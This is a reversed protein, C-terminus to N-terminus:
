NADYVREGNIFTTLVRMNHINNIPMDFLNQETVVLDARMGVEITGVEHRHGMLRAGNETFIRYADELSVRESEGLMDESGGPKQRTVMTEIALWPNVSPVVSWDSGVVVLAGSDVADKIPIWREMREAGIVKAIDDAAIPTPYWIYPSFEWAMHLDVARSIDAMDAFSNHGLDHMAGGWGNAERAAAVADIAARVAADGVSHFKIHLGQRDFETVVQELTEEPIMMIGKEPRQEGHHHSDSSIYPELMAATQSETPVGDVFMKVCDTKFRPRDYLARRDILAESDQRVVEPTPTWVMCGRVRQKIIGAESLAAFDGIEDARVSAITYSTIGYSAMTDSALTLAERKEEESPPPVISFVLGVATERMLGNPKGSSDREIIGGEPDPTDSTIGAIELAKSNVWISHHAEDNLLVPNDPAVADLLAKTQQGPEFVAAVWNGGQIWEGPEKEAACDKVAAVIVDPPAAPAFGCAFQELGAFLPHVHMDHLGPLVTSKELEVIETTDGRLSEVNDENGAAVIIGDRVAIAEVWGDPTRIQGDILILDAPDPQSGVDNSQTNVLASQSWTAGSVLALALGTFFTATISCSTSKM